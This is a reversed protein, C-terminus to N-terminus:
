RGSAASSADMDNSSTLDESFDKSCSRQDSGISHGQSTSDRDSDNSSESDSSDSQIEIVPKNKCLTNGRLPTSPPIDLQSTSKARKHRDHITKQLAAGDLNFLAEPATYEEAKTRDLLGFEDKYWAANKFAKLADNAKKDKESTLTKTAKDWQYNFSEAVTAAKCSRELLAKIFDDPFGQEQLTYCLYAPLNRNMMGLIAEADKTNPIVVHTPHQIGKQHVEAIAQCSDGMKIFYMLIQCLLYTKFCERTAPHLIDATTDVNIIAALEDGVMSVQYNTHSQAVKVQKRAERSMSQQNTVKSLHAHRGWLREVFGHEKAYQVLNKMKAAHRTAVELHWSRCAMQAYFKLKNFSSTDVGQLKAQQLRLTMKPLNDADPDFSCDYNSYFESALVKSKAEKLADGLITRLEALIVEKSTATSVKFLSVVTESDVDQLEKLILRNGGAKNWEHAMRDIIEQPKVDSSAVFSFFVMPDCFEEKKSTKCSRRKRNDNWIKKKNFANGSGLIRIHVGLKTMNTSIDGKSVICGEKSLPDLPNIM